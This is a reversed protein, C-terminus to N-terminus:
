DRCNLINRHNRMLLKLISLHPLQTTEEATASVNNNNNNNNNNNLTVGNGSANNPGNVSSTSSNTSATTLELTELQSRPLALFKDYTTHVDAFEKKIEQAEAYAFTLLL